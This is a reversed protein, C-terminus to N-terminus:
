AIVRGTSLTADVMVYDDNHNIADRLRATLWVAAEPLCVLWAGLNRAMREHRISPLGTGVQIVADAQRPISKRLVYKRTIHPWLDSPISKNFGGETATGKLIYFEIM